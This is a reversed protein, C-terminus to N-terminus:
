WATVKSWGLARVGLALHVKYFITKCEPVHIDLAVEEEMGVSIRIDIAIWQSNKWRNIIIM